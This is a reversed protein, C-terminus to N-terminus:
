RRNENTFLGTSKVNADFKQRFDIDHSDRNGVMPKSSSPKSQSTRNRAAAFFSFFPFYFSPMAPWSLFFSTFLLHKKQDGTFPLSTNEPYNSLGITASYNYNTSIPRRRACNTSKRIFGSCRTSIKSFRSRCKTPYLGRVTLVM